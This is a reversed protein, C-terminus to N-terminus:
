QSAGAEQMMRSLLYLRPVVSDITIYEDKAHVGDGALGFAELVIAKGSRGAYGADTGGGTGPYLALKRDIEGYIAQAKAAWARAAETAIFPPRGPEIDVSTVTDPVLPTAVKDRLAQQLRTLGDAASLRVDGLATASAPIQNTVLGANARTWNLQAGPVEIDKTQMIQHSLEVLANRGTKASVGAHSARGQVTMSATAIGSASMLIGELQAGNPECSFVFDHQAGQTAIWEGSVRSGIEEDPNFIVTLQAYDRWGRAHLMEVTHLILAVGSKDDAIGPGYVRNGDVRYPQSTLIGPQYVTDMHAILMIRKRGKGIFRGTIINDKREVAAGLANLRKESYDAVRTVGATDSSGSEMLVLDKLTALLPEQQGRAADLLGQDAASAAAAAASILAAMLLKKM